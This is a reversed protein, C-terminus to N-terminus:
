PWDDRTQEKRLQEADELADEERAAEEEDFEAQCEERLENLEDKDYMEGEFEEWRDDGDAYDNVGCRFAVPDCEKLVISPSMCAFPGGVDKFSYCDDLMDEFATELDAEKIEGQKIRERMRDEVSKM